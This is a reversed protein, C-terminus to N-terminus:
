GGSRNVCEVIFRAQAANPPAYGAETEVVSKGDCNLIGWVRQCDGDKSDDYVVKWPLRMPNDTM